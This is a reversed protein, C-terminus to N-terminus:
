KATKKNTKKPQVSDGRKRKTAPESEEESSDSGAESSSEQVVKRVVPKHSEEEEEEDDSEGEAEEDESDPTPVRPPPPPVPIGKKARSGKVPKKSAAEAVAKNAAEIEEPSRNDYRNKAESYEQKMKLMTQNYRDKEEETMNKWKDSILALLEPNTLTPNEKRLDNRVDNQFLIYSSAPRKPANPDKPKVVRKRKKGTDADELHVHDKRKGKEDLGGLFNAFDEVIHATNRLQEACASLGSALKARHQEFENIDFKTM